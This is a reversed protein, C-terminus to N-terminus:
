SHSSAILTEWGYSLHCSIYSSTRGLTERGSDIKLAEELELSYWEKVGEIGRNRPFECLFSFTFLLVMFTRKLNLGETPIGKSGGGGNKFFNSNRACPFAFVSSSMCRKFLFCQVYRKLIDANSM